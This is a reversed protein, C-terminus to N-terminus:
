DRGFRKSVAQKLKKPTKASIIARRSHYVYVAAHYEGDAFWCNANFDWGPYKARVQENQLQQAVESDIEDDCNSMLNTGPWSGLLPWDPEEIMVSM